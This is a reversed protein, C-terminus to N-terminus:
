RWTGRTQADQAIAHHMVRPLFCVQLFYIPISIWDDFRLNKCFGVTDLREAHGGGKM